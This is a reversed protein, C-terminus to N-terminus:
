ASIGSVFEYEFTDENLALVGRNELEDTIVAFMMRYEPKSRSSTLMVAYSQILTDTDQKATYDKMKDLSEM